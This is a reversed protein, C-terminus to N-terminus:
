INKTILSLHSQLMKCFKSPSFFILFADQVLPWQTSAALASPSFFLFWCRWWAFFASVLVKEAGCDFTMQFANADDFDWVAPSIRNTHQRTLFLLLIDANFFTGPVWGSECQEWTACTNLCVCAPVERGAPMKPHDRRDGCRRVSARCEECLNACPRGKRM